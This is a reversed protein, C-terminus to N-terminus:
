TDVFDEDFDDDDDEDDDDDDDARTDMATSATPRIVMKLTLPPEVSQPPQPLQSQQQQPPPPKTGQPLKITVKLPADLDPASLEAAAAAQQALFEAHQKARQEIAARRREAMGRVTAYDQDREQADNFEVDKRLTELRKELPTLDLSRIRLMDVVKKRLEVAMGYYPTAEDGNYHLANAALLRFDDLLEYRSRYTQKCWVLSFPLFYFSLIPFFLFQIIFLL